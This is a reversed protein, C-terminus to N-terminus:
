NLYPRIYTVTLRGLEGLYGFDEEIYPKGPEVTDRQLIEVLQPPFGDLELKFITARPQVEDVSIALAETETAENILFALAGRHLVARYSQTEHTDLVVEVPM